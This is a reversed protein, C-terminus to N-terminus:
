EKKRSDIFHKLKSTKLEGVAQESFTDLEINIGIKDIFLSSIKKNLNNSRSPYTPLIKLRISQNTMDGELILQWIFQDIEPITTILNEIYDREIKLGKYFITESVRGKIKNIRPHTRGCECPDFNLSTIDGTRYRILPSASKSLTTLVLEGEEGPSLVIGSKLDVIEPYAHDSLIHLGNKYKCEGAIGTDIESLGYQDYLDIDLNKEVYSRQKNSLPEGGAIGLTLQFDDPGLGMQKMKYALYLYYSSVAGMSNVKYEKLINITKNTPSNSVPIVFAGIHQLANHNIMGASFLGYPALMSFVSSPRVGQMHWTRALAKSSNKIDQRTFFSPVPRSTTGSSFHVEIVQDLPVALNTYPNETILESKTTFGLNSLDELSRIKSVDINKFKKRYLPSNEKALKATAQLRRLQLQKLTKLDVCEIEPYLYKNKDFMTGRGIARM